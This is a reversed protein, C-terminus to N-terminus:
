RDTDERGTEQNLRGLEFNLSRLLSHDFSLRQHIDFNIPIDIVEKDDHTSAKHKPPADVKAIDEKLHVQKLTAEYEEPIFPGDKAATDFSTRIDDIVTIPDGRLIVPTRLITDIKHSIEDYTDASSKHKERVGGPDVYSNVGMLVASLLAIVGSLIRLWEDTTSTTANSCDSSFTGFISASIIATLITCPIGLGFYINKYKQEGEKHGKKRQSIQTQWELLLDDFTQTWYKKRAAIFIAYQMVEDNIHITDTDKKPENKVELTAM